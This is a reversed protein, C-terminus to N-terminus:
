ATPAPGITQGPCFTPNFTLDKVKDGTMFAQNLAEAACLGGRFFEFRVTTLAPEVYNLYPWSHFSVISLDAPVQLGENRRAHFSVMSGLSDDFAIVATPRPRAMLLDKAAKFVDGEEGHASFELVQAPDIGAVSLADRVGMRKPLDMAADFGTLLAFRKHGLDLLRQTMSRAAEQQGLLIHPADLGSEAFVILPINRERIVDIDAATVDQPVIIVGSLNSAKEPRWEKPANCILLTASRVRAMATQVGRIMEAIPRHEASQPSKMLIGMNRYVRTGRGHAFTGKGHKRYILGRNELDSLALRVTVRSINFRRCLQHESDIPFAGQEPSQLIEETLASVVRARATSTRKSTM